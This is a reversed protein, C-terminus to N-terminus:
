QRLFSRSCRALLFMRLWSSKRVISRQDFLGLASDFPANLDDGLRRSVYRAFELSLVGVNRPTVDGRNAIHKAVLIVVDRRADNPIRNPQMKRRELSRYVRHCGFQRWIVSSV